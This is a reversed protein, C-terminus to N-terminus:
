IKFEELADKSSGSYFEYYGCNVCQYSLVKNIIGYVTVNVTRLESKCNSCKM